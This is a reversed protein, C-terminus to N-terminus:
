GTRAAKADYKLIPKSDNYGIPLAMAKVKGNSLVM